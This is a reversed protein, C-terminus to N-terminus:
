RVSDGWLLECRSAIKFKTTSEKVIEDFLLKMTVYARDNHAIKVCNLKMDGAMYSPIEDIGLLSIQDPVAIQLRKLANMVGISIQYNEMLFADPLVHEKLWHEMYADVSEISTGVPIIPCFEMDLGTKRVGALFGIRRREFNYLNIKQALYEIRRCGRTALFEVAKQTGTENDITVSHYRNGADYDFCVMPKRIARFGKDFDNEGLETACLVVGAVTPSNCEEVVHRIEPEGLGVYTIGISYGRKKAEEDFIRLVSSWVNLASDCIIGLKRDIVVVKITLGTQEARVEQRNQLKKDLTVDTKEEMVRNLQQELEEKCRFVAERTEESVGPKGNLALSVTAKSIGLKEAIDVAKIKM